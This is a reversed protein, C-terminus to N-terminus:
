KPVSAGPVCAIRRAIRSRKRASCPSRGIASMGAFNMVSVKFLSCGCAARLQNLAIRWRICYATKASRHRASGVCPILSGFTLVVPM